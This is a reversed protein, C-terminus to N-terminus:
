KATARVYCSYTYSSILSCIEGSLEHIEDSEKSDLLVFIM